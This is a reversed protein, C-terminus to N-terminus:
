SVWIEVKNTQIMMEIVEREGYKNMITDFELVDRNTVLYGLEKSKVTVRTKNDEYFVYIKKLKM